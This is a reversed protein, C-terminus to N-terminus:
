GLLSPKFDYIYADSVSTNASKIVTLKKGNRRIYDVISAFEDNLSSMRNDYNLYHIIKGSLLQQYDDFASTFGLQNLNDRDFGFGIFFIKKAKEIM